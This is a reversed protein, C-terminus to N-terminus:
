TYSVTAQDGGLLASAAKDSIFVRPVATANLTSNVTLRGAMIAARQEPALLDFGAIAILAARNFRPDTIGLGRANRTGDPGTRVDLVVVKGVASDGSAWQTPERVSGGYIAPANSISRVTTAPGVLVLDRGLTVRTGGAELFSGTDAAMLVFPVTQFYTGNEGAPELGLRKFEGAVYEATKYNGAEGPQRGMMSDHAILFLRARLDDASIASRTATRHPAQASIPGAILGVVFASLLARMPMTLSFAARAPLRTTM